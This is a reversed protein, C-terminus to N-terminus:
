QGPLSPQPSLIPRPAPLFSPAPEVHRRLSPLAHNGRPPGRDCHQPAVGDMPFGPRPPPPLFIERWFNWLQDPCFCLFPHRVQQPRAHDLRCPRRCPPCLPLFGPRVMELHPGPPVGPGGAHLSSPLPRPLLRALLVTTRIPHRRRPHSPASCPSPHTPFAGAPRRFSM